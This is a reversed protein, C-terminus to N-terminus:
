IAKNTWSFWTLFIILGLGITGFFLGVIWNIISNRIEQKRHEHDQRQKRMKGELSVFEEWKSQGYAYQIYQKLEARMALAKQKAAFVEIADAQASGTMSKWWPPNQAQAAMFDLDSIANAWSSLQSGMDSLEKGVEIGKKLYTFATSAAAMLTIPDM